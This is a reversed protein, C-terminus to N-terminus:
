SNCLIVIVLLPLTEAVLKTTVMYGFVLSTDFSSIILVFPSTLLDSILIVLSINWILKELRGAPFPEIM